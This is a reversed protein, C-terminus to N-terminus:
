RALSVKLLTQPPLHSLQSAMVEVVDCLVVTGWQQVYCQVCGM